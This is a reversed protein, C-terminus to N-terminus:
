IDVGNELIRRAVVIAIDRVTKDDLWPKVNVGMVELDCKINFKSASKIYTQNLYKRSVNYIKNSIRM